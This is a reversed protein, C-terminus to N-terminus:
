RSTRPALVVHDITAGSRDHLTLAAVSEDGTGPPWYFRPARDGGTRHHGAAVIVLAVHGPRLGFAPFRFRREGAALSYGELDVNRASINCVTVARLPPPSRTRWRRQHPATIKLPGVPGGPGWMGRRAERAERQSAVLTDHRRLPHFVFLHALGARVIEGNIFQDGVSVYALTRGYRDTPPGDLQLRVHKGEVLRRNLARAEDSFTQGVEPSNIGLYRVQRGDSLVISDGDLVREVRVDAHVLAPPVATTALALM